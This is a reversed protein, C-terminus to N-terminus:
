ESYMVKIFNKMEKDYDKLIASAKISGTMKVHEILLNQLNTKDEKELEFIAANTPNIKSALIEKTTHMYIVGGTMGAAFNHGCDGLIAVTGGTMYECGHEGVGEVVTIAGSNRVAFREGAKGSVFLKGATAGYLAVNGILSQSEFNQTASNNPRISVIGGCLGKAVYDNANGELHLTLGQPAFAAFSQGAGGFCQLTIFNDEFDQYSLAMVGAVNAGITRDTNKIKQTHVFGKHEKVAIKTQELLEEDWAEMEIPRNGKKERKTYPLCQFLASMDINKAKDCLSNYNVEFLDARGIIEDVSRMGLMALYERTEKALFTLYNKIHTAKGIFKETLAPNQTCIGVPCVGKYCQRCIVCGMSVLLSTGFAVEDAGIMFATIIDRGSQIQGDTQLTVKYRMTNAILAQHVEAVGLEWPLGVHYISSLPAAGTGGDHGSICISDAGAKVVGVAVTGIGAQAVLKVSVKINKKLKKIDYILQALDEISYIDHHPPPSILSVKEKTLRVSAIYPTVKHGPLQGGEGPKAGQAIKIQVEDGAALYEATVGFRGSAIQRIRSCLDKDSGRSQSRRIEEGGEGCNSSLGLNNFALAICEHSEKSIAGLSMAASYFRKLISEISEVEDISIPTTPKFKWISRLTIDEQKALQKTYMGFFNYDNEVVSKRLTSCIEKSWIHKDAKSSEHTNIIFSLFRDYNEQYIDELSIGGIRSLTNTFFKDIVDKHLGICEFSRSGIFSSLTSVGLRAFVKLLGKELALCYRKIGDGFSYGEKTKKNQLYNGISAFAAYPYIGNAGFSLLLAMHMVEFAQGTEIIIDCAHRLNKRILAQNVATVALLVPLPIKDKTLDKDSLILVRTGDYVAKEAALCLATLTTKFGEFGAHLPMTISLTQSKVQTNARIKSLTSAFLFPTQSAFYPTQEEPKQFLNSKGGLNTALSMSFKERIPDISPNTVQAFLQKFYNFLPQAKHSLVALPEDLGMAGVPEEKTNIMAMILAEPSKEGFGFLDFFSSNEEEIELEQCNNQTLDIRIKELIEEYPAKNFLKEKIEKDYMVRKNEFDVILLSRPALQGHEVYECQELDLVSVESSLIIINDKTISYRCPRLGNRDLSAGVKSHGDTFVMTTPGDWPEMLPTHYTYFANKKADALDSGQTNLYSSTKDSPNFTPEPIMTATAHSVDYGGQLLLEFVNDFAGSDSTSPHICPLVDALQEGLLESSLAAERIAMQTTNGRITNIEGNHAINRFPQTMHWSPKTNTSFREHFIAFPVEFSPDSLDLYFKGLNKGPLIGKYVISKSSLSAVHFASLDAKYKQLVKIAEFEIQKRLVFLDQEINQISRTTNESIFLFHKFEPLTALVKRSVINIDTPVERSAEIRFRLRKAVREISEFLADHLFSDYPLFFSGLGWLTNPELIAPFITGFFEKSIPVLMGSGDSMKKDEEQGGRHTLRSMACLAYEIIRHEAKNSINGIFGVGCADHEKVPNYLSNIQIQQQQSLTQM